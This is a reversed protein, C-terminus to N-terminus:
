KETSFKKPSVEDNLFSYLDEGTNIKMIFYILIINNLNIILLRAMHDVM